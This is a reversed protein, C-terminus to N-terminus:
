KVYISIMGILTNLLIRSHRLCLQGIVADNDEIIINHKIVQISLIIPNHLGDVLKYDALIPSNTTEGEFFVHEAIYCNTFL